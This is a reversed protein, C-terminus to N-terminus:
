GARNLPQPIAWGERRWESIIRARQELWVLATAPADRVIREVADLLPARYPASGSMALPVLALAAEIEGSLIIEELVGPPPATRRRLLRPFLGPSAAFSEILEITRPSIPKARM